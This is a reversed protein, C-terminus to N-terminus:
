GGPRVYRLVAETIMRRHAAVVEPAREDLGFIERLTHRNSVRYFCFSSIL